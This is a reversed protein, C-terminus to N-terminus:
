NITSTQFSILQIQTQSALCHCNQVPGNTSINAGQETQASVRVRLKTAYRRFHGNVSVKRVAIYEPRFDNDWIDSSVHGNSDYTRLVSEPLQRDEANPNDSVEEVFGEVSVKARKM